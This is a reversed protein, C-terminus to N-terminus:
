RNVTAASRSREVSEGRRWAPSNRTGALIDEFIGVFGQAASQWTFRALVLARGNRGMRQRLSEDELLTALATATAEVDPASVVGAQAAMVESALAVQDSILVPCEMAMAEAVAIGFNEHLSPLCFVDAGRLAEMAASGQLMGTFITQDAIGLETALNTLSEIYSATGPGAMVLRLESRQRAVRAFARVLVEPQKKYHLRGLFLVYRRDALATFRQAFATRSPLPEFAARRLGLPLVFPWENWAAMRSNVCEAESTAHLGAAGRLTAGEILGLYPSKKWASQRLCWPDLMGNTSVVYPVGARRCARAAICTPYQWLSAILVMEYHKVNQRLFDNLGPALRWFPLYTKFTRIDLTNSESVGPRYEYDTTAITVSHGACELAEALGMAATVPGGTNAALDPIVQLIKV